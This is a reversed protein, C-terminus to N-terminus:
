TKMVPARRYIVEAADDIRQETVKDECALDSITLALRLLRTRASDNGGAQWASRDLATPTVRATRWLREADVTGNRCRGGDYRAAQIERARRIEAAKRTADAMTLMTTSAPRLPRTTLQLIDEWPRERAVGHGELGVVIARAPLGSTTEGNAAAHAVEEFVGHEYSEDTALVLVGGHALNLEGPSAGDKGDARRSAAGRMARPSVSWHPYRVPHTGGPGLGAMSFAAATQYATEDDTEALAALCAAVSLQGWADHLLLPHRGAAAVALAQGLRTDLGALRDAGASDRKEPALVTEDGNEVQKWMTDIHDGLIAQVPGGARVEARGRESAAIRLGHDAAHRALTTLGPTNWLHGNVDVTAAWVTGALRSAHFRRQDAAIAAAIALEHHLQWPADAQLTAVYHKTLAIGSSELGLRIRPGTDDPRNLITLGHTKRTSDATVEITAAHAEMGQLVASLVRTM